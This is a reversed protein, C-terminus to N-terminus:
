SCPLVELILLIRVSLQSQNTKLRTHLASLDTEIAAGHGRQSYSLRSCQAMITAKWLVMYGFAVHQKKLNMFTILGTSYM